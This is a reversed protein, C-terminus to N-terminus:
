GADTVRASFDELEGKLASVSGLVTRRAIRPTTSSISFHLEIVPRGGAEVGRPHSKIYVGRWRRMVRDIIPALTSEMVGEVKLWREVFIM